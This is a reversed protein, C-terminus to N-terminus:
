ILPLCQPLPRTSHCKRDQFFTHNAEPLQSSSNLIVAIFV